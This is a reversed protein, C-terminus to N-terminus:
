KEQSPSERSNQNRVTRACSIFERQRAHTIRRPPRAKQHWEGRENGEPGAANLPQEEKGKPLNLHPRSKAAGEKATEDRDLV